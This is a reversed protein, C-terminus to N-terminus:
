QKISKNKFKLWKLWLEKLNIKANLVKISYVASVFILIIGATYSWHGALSKISIYSLLGLIFQIIFLKLLGKEFMFNSSKRALIYVQVLYLVYSTFIASGLGTLGYFRYGALSLLVLYFNSLVENWFYIKSNGQAIFLYAIAWSVAKFYMALISWQVMGMIALFATSYLLLVLWKAFILFVCLIPSLILLAMEAQQNILTNTKKNETSLASLRPFYDTGMASLVIGAYSGVIAFGASYLGVDNISGTSGIYIRILYSGAVTVVGSLSLLFGLKLMELGETGTKKISIEVPKIKLRRTCSWSIIISFFSSIIMSPVIGDIKYFYYLPISILLGFVSGLVNATAMYKLQRMGQLLANEGSALQNFLLVLSLWRFAITYDDTGFTTESLFAAGFFALFSGLLGTLWVLRRVVTVVIAVRASYGTTQAASIDKVASIGLGFNSIGSILGVSTTFLASIGLGSPGLLVAIVKSRILQILINFVQVGGFISTAKMIQRYSSQQESM